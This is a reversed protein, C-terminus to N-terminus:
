QRSRGYTTVILDRLNDVRPREDSGLVAVAGDLGANICHTAAKMAYSWAKHTSRQAKAVTLLDLAKELETNM